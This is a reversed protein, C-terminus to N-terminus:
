RKRRRPMRLWCHDIRLLCNPLSVPQLARDPVEVRNNIALPNTFNGENNCAYIAACEQFVQTSSGSNAVGALWFMYSAEAEVNAGGQTDGARWLTAAELTEGTPASFAWTASDKDASHKGTGLAAMLGGGTSCGNSHFEPGKSTSGKTSESWGDVPAVQGDPTRCSYVHYEGAQASAGLVGGVMASGVFAWAVVSTMWWSKSLKM